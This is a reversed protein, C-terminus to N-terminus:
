KRAARVLEPQQPWDRRREDHRRERRSRRAFTAAVSPALAQARQWQLWATAIGIGGFTLPGGPWSHTNFVELGCGSLGLLILPLWGHGNRRLAAAAAITGMALSLAGLTSLSPIAGRIGGVIPHRWVAEISARWSEPESSAQAAQVLIGTVIGAATDFVIFSVAFVFMALRCLNAAFTTSDSVLRTVAFASLAFLPVQAYHVFLWTSVDLQLLDHGPHPHFVELV